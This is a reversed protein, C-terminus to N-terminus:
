KWHDTIVEDTFLKRLKLKIDKITFPKKIFEIDGFDGYDIDVDKIDIGATIIVPINRNTSKVAQLLELGSKEPMILDAIILDYNNRKIIELAKVSSSELSVRFDMSVLIERFVDLVDPEDDVVLVSRQTKSGKIM